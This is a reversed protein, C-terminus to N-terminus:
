TQRDATRGRSTDAIAQKMGVKLQAGGAGKVDIRDYEPPGTLTCKLSKYQRFQERLTRQDVAPLDQPDRAPKMTELEACYDKVLQAIEKKAHDEESEPPPPPKDAAVTM